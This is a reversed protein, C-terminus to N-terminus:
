SSTATKSDSDATYEWANRFTRDTPVVSDAVIAYRTGNPLVKNALQELAQTESLGGNTQVSLWRPSPSTICAIGSTAASHIIRM